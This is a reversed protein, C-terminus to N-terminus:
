HKLMECYVGLAVKAGPNMFVGLLYVVKRGGGGGFFFFTAMLKRGHFTQKFKKPKPSDSRKWVMSHRKIEISSYSIWTEDSNVTLCVNRGKM